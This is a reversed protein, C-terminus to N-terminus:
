YYNITVAFTGGYIGDVATAPVTLRAGVGFVFPTSGVLQLPFRDLTFNSITLTQTGGQRVLQSTGTPIQIWVLATRAATGVFEARSVTGGVQSVGGTTTMIGSVADITATGNAAVTITAFDMDAIRLLSLPSILTATADTPTAAQAPMAFIAAGILYASGRRGFCNSMLLM